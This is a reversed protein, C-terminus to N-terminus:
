LGQMQASSGQEEPECCNQAVVGKERLEAEMLAIKRALLTITRDMRRTQASTTVAYGLFFVIAMYFVLDTGRGIGLWTAVTSTIQPFIVALVGTSLGLLWAINRIAQGRAGRGPLVIALAVLAFVTILIIKIIIKNSDM